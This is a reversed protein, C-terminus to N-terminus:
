KNLQVELLVKYDTGTNSNALKYRGPYLLELRKLTSKIGTNSGKVQSHGKIIKNVVQLTLWGNNITLSINVNSHEDMSIGFKFANEIFTLLLLPAIKWGPEAPAIHIDVTIDEKAPLRAKQLALYNNIFQIEEELPVFNTHMGTITYRLLDSLQDIGDATVPASEKLATGYLYNLSNFLFHPNLQSKLANLENETQQLQLAKKHKLQYFYDRLIGYVTAYATMLLIPQTASWIGSLKLAVPNHLVLVVFSLISVLLSGVAYLYWKLRAFFYVYQVEALLLFLAVVIMDYRLSSQVFYEWASVPTKDDHFIYNGYRNVHYIYPVVIFLNIVAWVLGFHALSNFLIKRIRPKM